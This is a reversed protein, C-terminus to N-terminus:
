TMSVATLPPYWFQQILSEIGRILSEERVIGAADIVIPVGDVNDALTECFRCSHYENGSNKVSWFKRNDFDSFLKLMELIQVFLRQM